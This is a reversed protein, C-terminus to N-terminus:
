SRVGCSGLRQIGAHAPMVTLTIPITATTITLRIPRQAHPHPHIRHPQPPIRQTTM